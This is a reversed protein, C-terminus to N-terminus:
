APVLSRAGKATDDMGYCRWLFDFFGVLGERSSQPTRYNVGFAGEQGSQRSWNVTIALSFNHRRIPCVADIRRRPFSLAMFGNIASYTIYM